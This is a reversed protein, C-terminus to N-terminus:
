ICKRPVLRSKNLMIYIMIYITHFANDFIGKKLNFNNPYFLLVLIEFNNLTGLFKDNGKSDM